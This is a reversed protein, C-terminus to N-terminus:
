GITKRNGKKMAKEQEKNFRELYECQSHFKLLLDNEKTQASAGLEKELILMNYAIIDDADQEVSEAM